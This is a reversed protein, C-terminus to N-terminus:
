EPYQAQCQGIAAELRAAEQSLVRLKAQEAARNIPRKDYMPEGDDATCLYTAGSPRLCHHLGIDFKAPVLRYGRQVARRTERMDATVTRLEARYPSECKQRPTTACATLILTAALTTLAIVRM